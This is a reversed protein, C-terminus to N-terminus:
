EFVTETYTKLSKIKEIVREPKLSFFYNSVNEINYKCYM